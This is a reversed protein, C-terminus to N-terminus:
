QRPPAESSRPETLTVTSAAKARPRFALPYCVSEDAVEVHTCGARCATGRQMRHHVDAELAVHVSVSGMSMSQRRSEAESQRVAHWDDLDDM